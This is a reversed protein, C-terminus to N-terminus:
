LEDDSKIRIKAGSLGDLSEPAFFIFSVIWFLLSFFIEVSKHRRASAIVLMCAFSFIVSLFCCFGRSKKM